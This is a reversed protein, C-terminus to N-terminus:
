ADKGGERLVGMHCFGYAPVICNFSDRVSCILVGSATARCHKCDSCFVLDMAVQSRKQWEDPTTDKLPKFNKM